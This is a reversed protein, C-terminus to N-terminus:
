LLVFLPSYRSKFGRCESDCDSVRVLQAVGARNPIAHNSCAVGASWIGYAVAAGCETLWLRVQVPMVPNATGHILWKYSRAKYDWNMLSNLAECFLM